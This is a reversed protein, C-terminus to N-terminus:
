FDCWLLANITKGSCAKSVNDVDKDGVPRSLVIDLTKARAHSILLTSSELGVLVVEPHSKRIRQVLGDVESSDIESYCEDMVVADVFDMNVNVADIRQEAKVAFCKWGKMRFIRSIM